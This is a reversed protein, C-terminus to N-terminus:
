KKPKLNFIKPEQADLSIKWVTGEKVLSIFSLESFGKGESESAFEKRIIVHVANTGETATGLTKMVLTKKMEAVHKEADVLRKTKAQGRRIFIERPTLPDLDSIKSLGLLRLLEQEEGITPAKLLYRRQFDKLNKLSQTEVLDAAENWQHLHIARLYKEAVKHSPHLKGQAWAGATGVVLLTLTLFLRRPSTM